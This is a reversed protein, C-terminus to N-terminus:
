RELKIDRCPKKYMPVSFHVVCMQAENRKQIREKRRDQSGLWALFRIFSIMLMSMSMNLLYKQWLIFGLIYILFLIIEFIYFSSVGLM